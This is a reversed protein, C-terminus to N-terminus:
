LLILLRQGQPFRQRVSWFAIIQLGIHSSFTDYSYKKIISHKHVASESDLNKIHMCPCYPLSIVECPNYSFNMRHAVLFQKTFRCFFLPAVFFKWNNRIVGGTRTFIRITSGISEAFRPQARQTHLCAKVCESARAKAGFFATASLMATCCLCWHVTAM